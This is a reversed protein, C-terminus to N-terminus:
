KLSWTVHVTAELEMSGVEVPVAASATAKARGMFVPRPGDVQMDESIAIVNGISTGSAAAYLEARRRANAMASKRAEDKLTEAQSVEFSIGGMQTAGLSLAADLVEGLRKLDRVIIRVQNNASYGTIVAPRGDRPTSYRPNVNIGITRIDKPDIGQAKIGEILKAMAASNANMAERATSAETLVGTNIAAVDPTASMHGSASVSVTRESM